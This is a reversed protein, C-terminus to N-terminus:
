REGSRGEIKPSGVWRWVRKRLRIVLAKSAMGWPPYQRDFGPLSRM